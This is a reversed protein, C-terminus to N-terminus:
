CGASFVNLFDLFDLIDVVGDENFDANGTTGCPLPQDTCASFDNLFDLFDLVDVTCDANYNAQCEPDFGRVIIVRDGGGFTSFLFDGTVPDRTGGEAGSLGSIFVRRTAPIPDGNSDVEYSAVSGGLFESVLISPATFLSAAAEVYVIGEPGGGLVISNTPASIDFTGNGDPSITADHWVGSNYPFVKLRGAGPFGAPVLTMAGVSSTFGLPTLSIDRDSSTSGPKIQGAVNMSYRSFFLVDGPGYFLAGDINPTDAYFTSAAGFGTVRGNGDRLVPVAYTKAFSSNASGGILLTDPDGAKFVLGGLPGPVGPPTGLVVFSYACEYYDDIVQAQASTTLLVLGAFPLLTRSLLTKNAIPRPM